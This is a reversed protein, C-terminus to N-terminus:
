PHTPFHPPLGELDEHLKLFKDIKKILGSNLVLKIGQIDRSSEEMFGVLRECIRELKANHTKLKEIDSSVTQQPSDQPPLAIPSHDSNM